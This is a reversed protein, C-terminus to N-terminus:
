VNNQRRFSHVSGTPSSLSSERRAAVDVDVDVDVDSSGYEEFQLNINNNSNSKSSSQDVGGNVRGYEGFEWQYSAGDVPTDVVVRGEVQPTPMPAYLEVMGSVDNVSMNNINMAGNINDRVYQQQLDIEYLAPAEPSMRYDRQHQHQHQQHQYSTLMSSSSSRPVLPSQRRDRPPPTHTERVLGGANSAEFAGEGMDLVFYSDDVDDMSNFRETLKRPSMIDDKCLPCNHHDLLWPDICEKHFLHDCTLKRVADGEELEDLCIACDIGDSDDAGCTATAPNGDADIGAVAVTNGNDNDNIADLKLKAQSQSKYKVVPLDQILIQSVRQRLRAQAEPDPQTTAMSEDEWREENICISRGVRYAYMLVLVAVTICVITIALDMVMIGTEPETEDQSTIYVTGPAELLRGYLRTGSVGSVAVHPLLRETAPANPDVVVAATNVTDGRVVSDRATGQLIWIYNSSPDPAMNVIGSAGAAKANKNQEMATCTSNANLRALFVVSATRALGDPWQMTDCGDFPEAIVMMGTVSQIPSYNAFVGTIAANNDVVEGEDNYQVTLQQQVLDIRAYSIVPTAPAPAVDTGGPGADGDASVLAALATLAFAVCKKLM